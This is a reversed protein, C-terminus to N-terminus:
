KRTKRVRAMKGGQYMQIQFNGHSYDLKVSPLKRKNAILKSIHEPSHCWLRNPIGAGGFMHPEGGEIGIEWGTKYCIKFKSSKSLDVQWQQPNPNISSNRNIQQYTAPRNNHQVSYFVVDPEIDRRKENVKEAPTQYEKKAPMTPKNSSKAKESEITANTLLSGLDFSKSSRINVKKRVSKLQEKAASSLMGANANGVVWELTAAAKSYDGSDAYQMGANFMYCVKKFQKIDEPSSEQKTPIKLEQGIRILNSTMGNIRKIEAMSTNYREAIVSIGRDKATVKHTSLTQKGPKVIKAYADLFDDKMQDPIRLVYGPPITARRRAPAIIDEFSTRSDIDYFASAEIFNGVLDLNMAQIPVDSIGLSRAFNHLNTRDSIPVYFRKQPKDRKIPPKKEWEQFGEVMAILRPLYKMGDDFRKPVVRQSKLKGRDKKLIRLLKRPNNTGSHRVAFRAHDGQNYSLIALEWNGYKEHADTLYAIASDLSKFFDRREDVGSSIKLGFIRATGRVFQWPGTAYAPSITFPNFHSEVASLYVIEESLGAKRLKEKAEKVFRGSYRFSALNWQRKGYKGRIKRQLGSFFERTVKLRDKKFEKSKKIIANRLHDKERQPNKM